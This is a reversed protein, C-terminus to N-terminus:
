GAAKEINGAINTRLASSLLSNFQQQFIGM